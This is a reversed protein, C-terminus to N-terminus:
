VSLEILSNKTKIKDFFYQLNNYIKNGLALKTKSSNDSVDVYNNFDIITPIVNLYGYFIMKGSVEGEWSCERCVLKFM